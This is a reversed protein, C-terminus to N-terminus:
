LTYSLAIELKTVVVQLMTFHHIIGLLKIIFYLSAIDKFTFIWNKLCYKNNHILLGSVAIGNKLHRDCHIICIQIIRSSTFFIGRAKILLLQNNFSM